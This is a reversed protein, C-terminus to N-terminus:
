GFTERATSPLRQCCARRRKSWRGVTFARARITCCNSSPPTRRVEL